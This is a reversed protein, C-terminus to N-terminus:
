HPSGRSGEAVGRRSLELLAARRESATAAGGGPRRRVAGDSASSRALYNALSQITPHEFLDALALTSEHGLALRNFVEVLLLSTGGVDFFNQHIDITDVQLVERWVAAIMEERDTSLPDATQSLPPRPRQSADILRRAIKGNASVPMDDVIVIQAPVMYYPLQRELDRRLEASLAERVQDRLPDNADVSEETDHTRRVTELAPAATGCRAPARHVFVVDMNYPNGSAAFTVHSDYSLGDALSWLADPEVGAAIASHRRDHVVAVPMMGDAAVLVRHLAEDDLLRANPVDKVILCEPHSAHLQRRVRPLDLGDHHWHMVQSPRLPEIPREVELWVDYRYRSMENHYPGRRLQSQVHSIRPFRATLREFFAPHIFLRSDHEVQRRVRERLEHVPMAAPARHLQVSAHFGEALALHRVDGIFIVGGPKVVALAKGIVDALYESSPFLEVVSNMVVTDFTAAGFGSFDDAAQHALTVHSGAEPVGALTAEVYKLAQLSIDTGAYRACHPALRFLLMGTGCGVELVGEPRRSLIREATSEVWQRMHDVPLLRGTHSDIWGQYNLTPDAAASPQSYIADWVQTWQAVRAARCRAAAAAIADERAVVYAVLHRNHPTDGAATVVATAVSPHQALTAEVEAPEVRFGRIKVQDDRRGVFELNGDARERAVDGTRFIRGSGFPNAVFREESLDARGHYGRALAIGGVCLEGTDGRRVPRLHEDLIYVRVNSIPRGIPPLRIWRDPAPPLTYATVVHTETPGYHNHLRCGPRGFFEAIAPTIQLQEGATIVHKLSAPRNGQAAVALQQLAVFPLFLRDIASARLTELLLYPNRRAHESILVLEGGFCLTTLIEQTAVDFGLPAFQLVREGRGLPLVRQQWRLLNLLVRHPMAVGKPTGTSGSTSLIYLLQESDFDRTADNEEHRACSTGSADSCVFRSSRRLAEPLRRRAAETAVVCMCDAQRAILELRQAPSGPDLPVYCSGAKLIALLAVITDPSREAYLGIPVDRGAGRARLDQALQNARRNLAEYTVRAADSRVAVAHPNREAEFEFLTVIAGGNALL